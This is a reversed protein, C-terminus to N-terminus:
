RRMLAEFGATSEDLEAIVECYRSWARHLEEVERPSLRELGRRASDHKAQAQQHRGELRDLREWFGADLWAARQEESASM